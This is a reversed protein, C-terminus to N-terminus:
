CGYKQVSDELYQLLIQSLVIWEDYNYQIDVRILPCKNSLFTKSNIKPNYYPPSRPTQILYVCPTM